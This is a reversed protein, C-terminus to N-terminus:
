WPTSGSSAPSITSHIATGSRGSCTSRPRSRCRRSCTSTPCDRRPSSTPCAPGSCPRISRWSASRSGPPWRRCSIALQRILVSRGPAVSQLGSGADRTSSARPRCRRRGHVRTRSEALDGRGSRDRNRDRVAVPWLRSLASQANQVVWAAQDPPPWSWFQRVLSEVFTPAGLVVATLAVYAVVFGGVAAAAPKWNHHGRQLRGIGIAALLVVMLGLFMYAKVPAHLGNWIPIAAWLDLRLGGVIPLLFMVLAAVIVPRARRVRLATAGLALAPLGVYAAIESQSWGGGPYWTQNLDLAPTQWPVFVNAFAAGLMDFPMATLRFLDARDLGGSRLSMSWLIATPIIQIAGIGAAILGLGVLRPLTDLRPRIAIMVAAACIGTLMWINPHLALAQIGWLVGATVLGARTPRPWRVLPLLIWPLWAFAEILNTWELKSVVGGTLVVAGSAVFAGLRSGSLRLALLGTGVGLLCLHAVRAVDLAQLPPLQFILWNPPYFAAIQGEAYLPFGLGLNDNWLPLRGAQLADHFFKAIPYDFFPMDFNWLWPGDPGVVRGAIVAGLLSFATLALILRVGRLRDFLRTAAGPEPQVAVAFAPWRIRERWTERLDM